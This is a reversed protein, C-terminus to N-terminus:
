YEDCFRRLHHEQWVEEGGELTLQNVGGGGGGCVCAHLCVCVCVHVCACVYACVCAGM